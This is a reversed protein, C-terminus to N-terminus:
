DSTELWLYNIIGLLSYVVSSVLRFDRLSAPNKIQRAGEEYHSTKNVDDQSGLRRSFKRKEDPSSPLSGPRYVLKRGEMRSEPSRERIFFTIQMEWCDKQQLTLSDRQGDTGLVSCDSGSPVGFRAFFCYIPVMM